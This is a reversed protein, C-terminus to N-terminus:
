DGNIEKIMNWTSLIGVIIAAIVIWLKLELNFVVVLLGLLMAGFGMGIILSVIFILIKM